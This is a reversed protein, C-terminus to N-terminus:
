FFFLTSLSFILQSCVHSLLGLSLPKLCPKKFFAKSALNKTKNKLTCVNNPGNRGGVGVGEEGGV